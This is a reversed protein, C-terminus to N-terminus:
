LTNKRKPRSRLLSLPPSATPTISHETSRNKKGKRGPTPNQKKRLSERMTFNIPTGTSQSTGEEGNTEGRYETDEPVNSQLNDRNWEENM